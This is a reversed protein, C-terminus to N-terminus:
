SVALFPPLWFYFADPRKNMSWVYKKGEIKEEGNEQNFPSLAFVIEGKLLDINVRFVLADDEKPFSRYPFGSVLSYDREEGVFGPVMELYVPIIQHDYCIACRMAFAPVLSFNRNEKERTLPVLSIEDPYVCFIFSFAEVLFRGMVRSQLWSFYMDADDKGPYTFKALATDLSLGEHVLGIEREIFAELSYPQFSAPMLERCFLLIEAMRVNMRQWTYEDRPEKMDEGSLFREVEKETTFGAKKWQKELHETFHEM